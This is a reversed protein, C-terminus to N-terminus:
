DVSVLELTTVSVGQEVTLGTLAGSATDYDARVTVGLAETLLTVSSEDTGAVSLRAGTLPDDDLVDDPNMLGLSAPDYWYLGTSGTAGLAETEEVYGDFDIATTSRFTAWSEGVADLTVVVEIPWSTSFGGPDFPSTVTTEGAYQLQIGPEVWAPVASGLGPLTRDRVDVVRTFMIQVNGEPMDLASHVPSGAAQYRGTSAVLLGSSADFVTSAYDGQTRSLFSVSEVPTDGLAYTGRLVQLDPIGGSAVQALLDPRVWAGDVAAGPYRGGWLPQLSHQGTDLDIGWMTTSLVVYDGEVALVDTQSLAQGAATPMEEEDTRRYRKKTVPDEWEGDPDEVYTYYSSRVSAAAGYWTLRTGASVWDPPGGGTVDPFADGDLPQGSVTLPSALIFVAACVSGCIRRAHRM